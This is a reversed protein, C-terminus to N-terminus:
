AEFVWQPFKGHPASQDSQSGETRNKMQRLAQLSKKSHTYNAFMRNVYQSRWPLSHVVITEDPGSEESPMMDNKKRSKLLNEM